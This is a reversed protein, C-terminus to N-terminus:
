LPVFFNSKVFLSLSFKFKLQNEICLDIMRLGITFLSAENKDEFALCPILNRVDAQLAQQVTFVYALCLAILLTDIREPHELKSKNICFGRSKADSFFTEILFRKSYYEFADQ